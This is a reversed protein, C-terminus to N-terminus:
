AVFMEGALMEQARPAALDVFMRVHALLLFTKSAQALSAQSGVGAGWAERWVGM